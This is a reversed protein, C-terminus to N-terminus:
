DAVFEPKEIRWCPELKSRAEGLWAAIYPSSAGAIKLGATTRDDFNVPVWITYKPTDM